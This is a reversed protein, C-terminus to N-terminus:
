YDYALDQARVETLLRWQKAETSRAERVAKKRAAPMKQWGTDEKDIRCEFLREEINSLMTLREMSCDGSAAVELALAVVFGLRNQVARRQAERVLWQWDLSEYRLVLWPLSEVVREDVKDCSLAAMLVVGPDHSQEVEVETFLNIFGPYGLAGIADQLARSRAEERKNM